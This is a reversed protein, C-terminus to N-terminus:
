EAKERVPNAPRPNEVTMVIRNGTITASTIPWDFDKLYQVFHYPTNVTYGVDELPQPSPEYDFEFVFTDPHCKGSFPNIIEGEHYQAFKVTQGLAKLAMLRYQFAIIGVPGVPKLM